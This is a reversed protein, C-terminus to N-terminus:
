AGDMGYDYQTGDSVVYKEESYKTLKRDESIGPNALRGQQQLDAPIQAGSLDPYKVYGPFLGQLLDPYPGPPDTCKCVTQRQQALSIQFNDALNDPTFFRLCNNNIRDLRHVTLM